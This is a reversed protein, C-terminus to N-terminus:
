TGFIKRELVTPLMALVSLWPQEVVIMEQDSLFDTHIVSNYRMCMAFNANNPDMPDGVPPQEICRRKRSKRRIHKEPVTRCREPIGLSTSVVCFSGFSALIFKDNQKPCALVSCPFDMTKKLELPLKGSVPFGNKESWNSLRRAKLNFVYTAFNCCTVTLQQSNGSLFAVSTVPSELAPLSWDFMISNEKVLFLSVIGDGVGGRVTAFLKGNESVAILQVPFTSNMGRTSTIISESSVSIKSMIEEMEKDVSETENLNLLCVSSDDDVCIIQNNSLFKVALCPRKLKEELQIRKPCCSRTGDKKENYVVEFLLLNSTTSAVLYKGDSSIDSCIINYKSKVDLTGIFTNNEKLVAPISEVRQEEIQHLDLSKERRLLLIRGSKAISIPSQTPWPFWTKPRGFKLGTVSFTCIKTDIGGSCLVTQPTTAQTFGGTSDHVRCICMAKVDHTHPRQAHALVWPPPGDKGSHYTAREICILRPDIGSAFVQNEDPTVAITLVDAKKDNQEFSHILTGTKGDWFQVHGLSDGSVLTGDRLVKLSWVFTPTNRDLSEVTMRINSRWAQNGVYREESLISGKTRAAAVESKYEYRRITGDAVGAYIVTGGMGNCSDSERCWALSLISAGAPPLTSVLDLHTEDYSKRLKYIRICSDECGAAVLGSCEGEKCCNSGCLSSLAFVGGGGSGIPSSYNGKSFDLLFITGDTSAGILNRQSNIETHSRQFDSSFSLSTDLRSRNKYMGCVWAMTNVTKGRLGAITALSRWKEDPSKLEINGGDRSVAVYDLCDSHFPTPAMCIIARPEFNLHRMRHVRVNLLPKNEAVFDIKKKRNDEVIEEGPVTILSKKVHLMESMPRKSPLPPDKLELKESFETPFINVTRTLENQRNVINNGEKVVSNKSHKKGLSRRSKKKNNNSRDKRMLKPSVEEDRRKIKKKKDSSSM